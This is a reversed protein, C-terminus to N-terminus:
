ADSSTSWRRASKGREEALVGLLGFDAAMGPRNDLEENLTLSRTYWNEAENLRGQDQVIVGLDHCASAIGPRDGLEEKIALSRAHWNEADDRQRREYAINGLQHYSAAIGALDGRGENIELSKTYWGGADDLRGRKQAIRGLQHYTGAMGPRDGLMEEIVLSKTYWDEADDLQGRDQAIIGLQHYAAAMGPRNDLEEEISLSKAYWREADDLRRRHQAIIGLQEYSAAMGPRNNLEERIALSTVHRSEADVLLGRHQAILGLNHYAVAIHEQQLSSAPQSQLAALIQQYSREAGDLHGTGLLRGAQAGAFFLWLAGAHSELGPAAGGADEAGLRVRDARADAEQYLGRADWYDDLPQGIALAEEWLERSLAYALLSGLTRRHMGVATLAHGADGSGIRERAWVGLDAFAALLTRTAAERLVGHDGPEETRWRAGLYAPLAPHMLYMGSDIRTLLGVRVADEMATWWDELSVGRFREPVGPVKSFTALVIADVVGQFLSAATLLRRSDTSLQIYSYAISADLSTTRGAGVGHSGGPLAAIGRLGDLLTEADVADLHPLIFRM